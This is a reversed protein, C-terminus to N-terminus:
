SKRLDVVGHAHEVQKTLYGWNRLITRVAAALFSANNPGIGGLM